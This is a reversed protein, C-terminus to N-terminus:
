QKAKELAKSASSKFMNYAWTAGSVADVSDINQKKLLVAPYLQVGKWDNRCQNIYEANGIFHKEYQGDFIEDKTTDRIEFEVKLIKGNKIEVKTFAMFPEDTYKSQSRGEYIGDKKFGQKSACSFFVLFLIFILKNLFNNIRM